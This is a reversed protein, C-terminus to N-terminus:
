SFKLFYTLVFNKFIMLINRVEYAYMGINDQWM